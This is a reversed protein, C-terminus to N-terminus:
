SKTAQMQWRFGGSAITSEPLRYALPIPQYKEAMGLFGGFGIVAFMINNSQKDLVVDEIQGTKRGSADKASDPAARM